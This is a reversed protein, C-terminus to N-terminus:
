RHKVILWKKEEGVHQGSVHKYKTSTTSPPDNIAALAPGEQEEVFGDYGEVVNLDVHM